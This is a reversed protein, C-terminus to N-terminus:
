QATRKFFDVLDRALVHIDEGQIDEDSLIAGNLASRSSEGSRRIEYVCVLKDGDFVQGRVKIVPQGAGFAGAFYRAAGGGREYEIITNQVKLAKSEPKVDESHTTVTSFLRADRLDDVLQEPLVRMARARTDVENSREVAAFETPAIYIIDYGKFKFGDALWVGQINRDEHLTVGAPLPPVKSSAKQATGSEGSPTSACGMLLSLAGLMGTCTATRVWRQLVLNPKM